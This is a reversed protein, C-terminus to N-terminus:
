EKDSVLDLKELLDGLLDANIFNNGDPDFQNFTRRAIDAPTEAKTLRKEFSFLVLYVSFYTM